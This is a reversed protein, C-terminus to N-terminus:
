FAHSASANEVAPVLAVVNKKLGLKAAAVVAHIVAAGGSMDMHMEYMSDGPKVQLGGTDFTVGKGALVVPKKNRDTGWYEGIIFQPELASGKAVGLAGGMGLGTMESRGLIKVKAATGEAAKVAADALAEPTMDSGPMNALERAANVETAIVRGKEFANKIVA